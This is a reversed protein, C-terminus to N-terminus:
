AQGVAQTWPGLRAARTLAIMDDTAALAAALQGHSRLLNVLDAAAGSALRHRGRDRATDRLRAMRTRADAPDIQGLLRAYIVEDELHRDPDTEAALVQRLQGLVRRTTGPSEDRRAVQWLRTGADTWRGGRLLCPVAALGADVG